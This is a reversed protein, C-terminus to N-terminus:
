AAAQAAAPAAAVAHKPDVFYIAKKYGITFGFYKIPTPKAKKAEEVSSVTVRDWDKTQADFSLDIDSKFISAGVLIIRDPSLKYRFANLAIQTSPEAYITVVKAKNWTHHCFEGQGIVENVEARSLRKDEAGFTKEEIPLHKIALGHKERVVSSLYGLGKLFIGPIIGIALACVRIVTKLFDKLPKLPKESKWYFISAEPMDSVEVKQPCHKCNIEEVVLQHGNFFYRVPTLFFEGLSTSLVGPNFWSDNKEIIKNTFFVNIHDTIM